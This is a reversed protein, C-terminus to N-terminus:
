RIIGLKRPDSPNAFKAVIPELRRYMLDFGLQTKSNIPKEMRLLAYSCFDVLQIFYSSKSDKFVPDEVFREIPINRTTAGTAPWHGANSAIHNIIRMRRIRKTFEVEQGADCFLVVHEDFKEATRNIRNILREFAFLENSNISSFLRFFKCGSIFDLTSGFIEAREVKDIRRDSIQGKGAVFKWAHLEQSLYIGKSKRLGKRFEKVARFARPWAEGRMVLASYIYTSNNEKSEDLYAFWM